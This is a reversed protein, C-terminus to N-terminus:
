IEKVMRAPVGAFVCNSKVPGKVVAGAAVISRSSIHVGALIRVGCGIWVDDEIVVQSLTVPNDRIPLSQDEYTHSSTMITSGHAVSVNSGIYLGGAADIYCMPHISVHSGISLNEANFIYVGPKIAVNEGCEKALRKILVYRLAVGLSSPFNRAATFFMKALPKPLAKTLINFTFLIPKAIRFLDRGRM